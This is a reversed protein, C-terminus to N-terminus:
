RLITFCISCIWKCPINRLLQGVGVNLLVDLNLKWPYTRDGKKWLFIGPLNSCIDWTNTHLSYKPAYSCKDSESKIFTWKDQRSGKQYIVFAKIYSAQLAEERLISGRQNVSSTESISFYNGCKRTFRSITRRTLINPLEL